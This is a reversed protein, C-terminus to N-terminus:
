AIRSQREDTLGGHRLIETRLDGFLYGRLGNFYETAHSDCLFVRDLLKVPIRLDAPNVFTRAINLEDCDGLLQKSPLHLPIRIQKSPNSTGPSDSKAASSGLSM